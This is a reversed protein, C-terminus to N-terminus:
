FCATLYRCCSSAVPHTCGPLHRQTCTMVSVMMRTQRPWPVKNPLCCAPTKFPIEARLASVNSVLDAHLVRSANLMGFLMLVGRVAQSALAALGIASYVGLYFRLGSANLHDGAAQTQGAWVSLWWNQVVQARAAVCCIDVSAAAVVSFSSSNLLIQVFVSKNVSLRASFWSLNLKTASGM